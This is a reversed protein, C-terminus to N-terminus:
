DIAPYRVFEGAGVDEQESEYPEVAPEMRGGALLRYPKGRWLITSDGFSAMWCFFSILDWVPYLWCYRLANRDRVVAGGTVLALVIRNIMALGLVLLGPLPNRVLIAGILSLLGFPIAFTLVTGPHGAPRSFRTSKMWRLHHRVLDACSRGPAVHDIVYDSLIVQYGLAAIKNGIVFDDSCYDALAGIGGSEEVVERRTAMTPGLAFHIGEVAEAAVVGSTMEVSMGLATLRNWFGGHPLGRYLCTVMGVQPDALPAIVDRIYSPGVQVDSDSFIFYDATALPLMQVLSCVKRNPHDPEFPAAIKVCVNPYKDRLRNVVMLAEDEACPTGFILEYDSYEQRFFNELNQELLPELGCLPKFVTVRPEFAAQTERRTHFRAASYCVIFLFGTSCLLGLAGLYFFFHGIIVLRM